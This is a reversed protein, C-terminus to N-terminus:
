VVYNWVQLQFARYCYSDSETPTKKGMLRKMPNLKNILFVAFLISWHHDGPAQLWHQMCEFSPRPTQFGHLSSGLLSLSVEWNDKKKKRRKLEKDIEGRQDSSQMKCYKQQQKSHHFMLLFHKRLKKWIQFGLYCGLKSFWQRSSAPMGRPQKTIVRGALLLIISSLIPSCFSARKSSSLQARSNDFSLSCLGSDPDISTGYAHCLFTRSDDRSKRCEQFIVPRAFPHYCLWLQDQRDGAHMLVHAWVCTQKRNKLIENEM